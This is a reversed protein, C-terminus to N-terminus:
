FGKASLTPQSMTQNWIRRTIGYQLPANGLAEAIPSSGNATQVNQGALLGMLAANQQARQAAMGGQMGMAQLTQANWAQRADQNAMGGRLRMEAGQMGSQAQMNAFNGLSNAAGMQNQFAQLNMGGLQGAAALRRGMASELASNRVQANMANQNTLADRRLRAEGIKSATGGLQGLGSAGARQMAAQEETNMNFQQNLAGLMGEVDQMGGTQALEGLSEGAIGLQQAADRNAMQMLADQGANFNGQQSIDPIGLSNIDIDNVAKREPGTPQQGGMGMRQAVKGFVGRSMGAPMQRQAAGGGMWAGLAGEAASPGTQMQQNVMQQLMQNQANQAQENKKNAKGQKYAGYLSTGVSIAAPIAAAM